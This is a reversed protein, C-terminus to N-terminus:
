EVAPQTNSGAVRWTFLSEAVYNVVMGVGIGAVKAAVFWADIGLLSLEVGTWRYLARFTVLQVTM